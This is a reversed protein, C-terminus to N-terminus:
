SAQPAATDFDGTLLILILLLTLVLVFVVRVAVPLLM